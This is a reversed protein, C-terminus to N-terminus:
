AVQLRPEERPSSAVVDRIPQPAAKGGPVNFAVPMRVRRGVRDASSTPDLTM